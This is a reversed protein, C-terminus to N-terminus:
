APKPEAALFESVPVGPPLRAPLRPERQKYNWRVTHVTQKEVDFVLIDHENDPMTTSIGFGTEEGRCGTLKDFIIRTIYSADNLRRQGIPSSLALRLTEEIESGGWHTYLWVDDTNTDSTQRVVINGRDGM